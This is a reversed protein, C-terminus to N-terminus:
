LPLVVIQQDALTIREMGGARVIYTDEAGVAGIGPLVFKPELAICMGEQLVDRSRVGLVPLDNVVLGVGHGVFKSKQKLGMFNDALGADAAMKLSLEYLQEGTSGPKGAESLAQHIDLSVRHAELAERPVAGLVYVRSMDSLYGTFNGALDFMITKGPQLVSGNQGVPLSPHLGAGGLAFDYPSPAGANDGTLTTGMFIEMSQGAIRFIGLSGALRMQRELEITWEQDTMGPRYLSPITAYARVHCSASEILQEQEYPTKVSRLSRFVDSGNITKSGPFIESLRAWESHSLEDGELLVNRPLPLGEALLMEPIQEPKRIYVVGDGILGVPRRVYFRETGDAHIYVYGSFIRGTLYLIHLNSAVICADLHKNILATRLKDRRNRADVTLEPSTIM